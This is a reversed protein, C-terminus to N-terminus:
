TVKPNLSLEDCFSLCETLSRYVFKTSNNVRKDVRLHKSQLPQIVKDCIDFDFDDLTLVKIRNDLSSVNKDIEVENESFAQKKAPKRKVEELQNGNVIKKKLRLTKSTCKLFLKQLSKVLILEFTMLLLASVPRIILIDNRIKSDDFQPVHLIQVFLWFMITTIDTAALSELGFIYSLCLSSFLGTFAIMCRPVSIIFDLFYMIQVLDFLKMKSDNELDIIGLLFLCLVSILKVLGFFSAIFKRSFGLSVKSENRTPKRESRRHNYKTESLSTNNIPRNIKIQQNTNCDECLGNKWSQYYNPVCFRKSNLQCDLQARIVMNYDGSESFGNYQECRSCIWSNRHKREVKTYENCFWCSVTVKFLEKWLKM